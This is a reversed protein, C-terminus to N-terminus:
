MKHLVLSYCDYPLSRVHQQLVNCFARLSRARVKKPAQSQQKLSWFSGLVQSDQFSGRHSTFFGNSLEIFDSEVRKQYKKKKAITTFHFTFNESTDPVVSKVRMRLAKQSAAFKSKIAWIEHNELGILYETMDQGCEASLNGYVKMFNAGIEHISFLDLISEIRTLNDYNRVTNFYNTRSPSNDRATQTQVFNFNLVLKLIVFSLVYNRM